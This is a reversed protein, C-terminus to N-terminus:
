FFSHFVKNQFQFDRNTHFKRKYNLFFIQFKSFKFQYFIHRVRFIKRYFLSDISIYFFGLKGIKMGM